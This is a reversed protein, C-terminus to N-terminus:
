CPTADSEGRPVIYAKVVDCVHVWDEYIEDGDIVKAWENRILPSFPEPLIRELTDALEEILDQLEPAAHTKACRRKYVHRLDHLNIKCVANMPLSMPYTGRVADQDGEEGDKIYGFSGLKFLEGDFQFEKPLLGTDIPHLIKGKYYDSKGESTEFEKAIFRTSSRIFCNNFRSGAHSDLDDMAARHLGNIHIHIDIFRLLTEHGEELRCTKSGVAAGWKVLTSCRQLFDQSCVGQEEYQRTGSVIAEEIEPTWSRKSQTLSRLATDIGTIKTVEVYKSNEQGKTYM